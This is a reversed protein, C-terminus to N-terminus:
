AGRAFFATVEDRPALDDPEADIRRLDDMEEPTFPASGDHATLFSAVLDALAGRGPEPLASEAM